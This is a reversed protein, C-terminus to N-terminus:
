IQYPELEIKQINSGLMELSGTYRKESTYTFEFNFKRYIGLNGNPKRKIKISTIQINDDLLQVEAQQCYAKCKNFAAQKLGRDLWWVWAISGLIVVIFIDELLM